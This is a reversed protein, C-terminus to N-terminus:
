QMLGRLGSARRQEIELPPNDAAASRHQGKTLASTLSQAITWVPQSRGLEAPM